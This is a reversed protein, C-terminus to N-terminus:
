RSANRLLRVVEKNGRGEVLREEALQLPIQGKSNRANPDAGKALLYAATEADNRSVARHLPTYDRVEPNVDAGHNVLQRIIKLDRSMIARDLATDGDVVM